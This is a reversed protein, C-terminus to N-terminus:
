ATVVAYGKSGGPLQGPTICLLMPYVAERGAV